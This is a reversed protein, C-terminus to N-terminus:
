SYMPYRVVPTSQSLACSPLTLLYTPLNAMQVALWSDLCTIGCSQKTLSQHPLLLKEHTTTPSFNTHPNIHCIIWVSSLTQNLHQTTDRSLLGFSSILALLYRANGISHDCISQTSLVSLPPSIQLFLPPTVFRSWALCIECSEYKHTM